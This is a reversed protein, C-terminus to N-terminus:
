NSVRLIFPGVQSASLLHSLALQYEADDDNTECNYTGKDRNDKILKQIALDILELKRDHEM